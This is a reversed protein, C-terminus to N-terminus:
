GYRKEKTVLKRRKQQLIAVSRILEEKEIVGMAGEIAYEVAEIEIDILQIQEDIDTMIQREEQLSILQKLQVLYEDESLHRMQNQSRLLVSLDHDNIM